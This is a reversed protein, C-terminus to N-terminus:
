QQLSEPVIQQMSQYGGNLALVRLEEWAKPNKDFAAVHQNLIDEKTAGDEPGLVAIYAKRMAAASEEGSNFPGQVAWVPFVQRAKESAMEYGRKKAWRARLVFAVLAIVTALIIIETM